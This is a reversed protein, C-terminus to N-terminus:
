AKSAVRHLAAHIVVGEHLLAAGAVGNSTVRLDDGLGPSPFGHTPAKQPRHLMRVARQLLIAAGPEHALVDLAAARILRPWYTRLTDPSDLLELSVIRGGYGVIVGVTEPPCPLAHVYTTLRDHRHRYLDRLAETSSRVAAASQREAVEKWIAGQDAHHRAGTRLSMAGQAGKARRLAPYASKSLAFGRTDPRWRGREVCSVPLTLQGPPVLLTSNVVRNQQDGVLTDGNTILVPLGERNTVALANM